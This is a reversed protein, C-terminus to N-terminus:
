QGEEDAFLVKLREYAERQSNRLINIRATEDAVREAAQEPTEMLRGGVVVKVAVEGYETYTEVDFNTLGDALAKQLQEIVGEVGQYPDIEREIWTLQPAPDLRKNEQM